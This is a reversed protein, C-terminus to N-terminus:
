RLDLGHRELRAVLEGVAIGLLGAARDLDGDSRSVAERLAEKEAAVLRAELSSFSGLVLTDDLSSPGDGWADPPEVPTAPGPDDLDVFHGAELSAGEPCRLVAGAVAHELESLRGEWRQDQLRELAKRGIGRIRKGYRRAAQVAFHRVMAAVDDRFPEAEAARLRDALHVLLDAVWAAPGRGPPFSAVLLLGEGDPPPCALIPGRPGEMEVPEPPQDSGRWGDEALTRAAVQAIAEDSPVAGVFDRLFLDGEVVAFTWLGDAGVSRAARALVGARLTEDADPSLEDLERVLHLAWHPATEGARWGRGVAKKGTTGDRDDLVLALELDADAVTELFLVARGLLVCEGPELTVERFRRGGTVLGNKSDLDVLRVGEPSRSARAHKRSVGPFPLVFDNGEASGVTVEREDILTLRRLDDGYRAVMRFM